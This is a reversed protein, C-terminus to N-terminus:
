REAKIAYQYLQQYLPECESLLDNLFEPFPDTKPTYKQFGTSQHLTHYWYPAWVGDEQRPQAPWSLMANDFQLELQRCMESLVYEPNLLLERADLMPVTQGQELMGEFLEAQIDLATDQLDPGPIQNILSPLMERPDRILFVHRTKKLFSLELDTLHHPM